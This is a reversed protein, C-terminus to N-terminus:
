DTTKGLKSSRCAQYKPRQWGPVHDHGDRFFVGHGFDERFTGAAEAIAEAVAAAGGSREWRVGHAYRSRTRVFVSLEYSSDFIM